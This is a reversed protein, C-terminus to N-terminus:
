ACKLACACVCVCVCQDLWGLALIIVFKHPLADWWVAEYEFTHKAKPTGQLETPLSDAQLAPSMPEIGPNPLDGPFPFPLQHAASWPTM